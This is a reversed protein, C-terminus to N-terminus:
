ELFAECFCKEDYTHGSHKQMVRGFFSQSINLVGKQVFAACFFENKHFPNFFITFLGRFGTCLSGSLRHILILIVSNNGGTKVGKYESESKRIRIFLGWRLINELSRVEGSTM